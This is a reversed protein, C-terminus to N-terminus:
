CRISKKRYCEAVSHEPFLVLMGNLVISCVLILQNCFYRTEVVVVETKKWLNDCLPIQWDSRVVVSAGALHGYKELTCMESMYAFTAMNIQVLVGLSNPFKSTM